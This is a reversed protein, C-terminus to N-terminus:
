TGLWLVGVGAVRQGDGLAQLLVPAAGQGRQRLHGRRPWAEPSRMLFRAVVVQRQALQWVGVRTEIPGNREIGGQQLAPLPQRLQALPLAAGAGRRPQGRRPLLNSEQFRQRRFQAGDDAVDGLVTQLIRLAQALVEQAAVLGMHLPHAQQRLDGGAVAGEVVGLKQQFAADLEVGAVAVGSDLVGVDQQPHLLEGEGVFLRFAQQLLLRLVGPRHAGEVGGGAVADALARFGDGAVALQHRRLRVIRGIGDGQRMNVLGGTVQVLRHGEVALRVAELAVVAIRVPAQRVGLAILEVSGLYRLHGGGCVGQVGGFQIADLQAEGEAVGTLRAAVVLGREAVEALAVGELLAGGGVARRLQRHAHFALDGDARGLQERAAGADAALRRVGDEDDAQGAGAGRQDLLDEGGVRLHVAGHFQM